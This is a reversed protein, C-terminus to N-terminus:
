CAGSTDGDGCHITFLVAIFVAIPVVGLAGSLLSCVVVTVPRWGAQWGIAASIVVAVVAAIVAVVGPSPARL